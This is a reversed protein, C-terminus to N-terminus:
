KMENFMESDFLVYTIGKGNLPYATLLCAIRSRQSQRLHSQHIFGICERTLKGTAFTLSRCNSPGRCVLRSQQQAVLRSSVKIGRVGFSDHLQQMM